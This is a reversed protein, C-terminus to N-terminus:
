SQISGGAPAAAANQARADGGLWFILPLAMAFTLIGSLPHIYTDLIPTGYWAVLAVLLLVRLMNSVIAIPAAAVLVLARRANSTSQYATLLAVAVAAYLTSFGSCADAVEIAGRSIHLTTGETFVPVGVWPLVASTGATALHRLQLHISETFSLPIPLALALFLLPILIARTRAAGLLLLSLGPMALVIAAASLLETHMAADFARLLLAPVLIAFGWASSSPPLHRTARLEERVFYAAVPLILLGHANHWVSLTWRGWLWVMTPAFIAILGILVLWLWLRSASSGTSTAATTATQSGPDDRPPPTPRALRTM